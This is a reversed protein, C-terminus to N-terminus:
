EDYVDFRGEMLDAFANDHEEAAARLEEDREAVQKKVEIKAKRRAAQRKEKRRMKDIKTVRKSRSLGAM